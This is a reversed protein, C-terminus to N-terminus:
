FLGGNQDPRNSFNLNVRGSNISLELAHRGVSGRAEM